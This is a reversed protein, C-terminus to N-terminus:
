GDARGPFAADNGLIRVCLKPQKAPRNCCTRDAQGCEALLEQGHDDLGRLGDCIDGDAAALTFDQSPTENVHDPELM